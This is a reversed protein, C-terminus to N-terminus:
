RWSPASFSLEGLLWINHTELQINYISQVLGLKLTTFVFIWPLVSVRDLTELRRFCEWFWFWRSIIDPIRDDFSLLIHHMRCLLLWLWEVFRIFIHAIKSVNHVLICLVLVWIWKHCEFSLALLQILQCADPCWVLLHSFIHFIIRCLIAWTM